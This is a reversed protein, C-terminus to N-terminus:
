HDKDEIKVQVNGEAWLQNVTLQDREQAERQERQGGVRGVLGKSCPASAVGLSSELITWDVSVGCLERRVDVVVDDIVTM